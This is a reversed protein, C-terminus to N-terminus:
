AAYGDNGGSLDAGDCAQLEAAHRDPRSPMGDASLKAAHRDNRDSLDAAGNRAQLEATHRNSRDPMVSRATARTAGSLKAAHWDPWRPMAESLQWASRDHRRQLCVGATKGDFGAPMGRYGYGRRVGLELIVNECTDPNSRQLPM